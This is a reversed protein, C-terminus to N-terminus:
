ECQVFSPRMRALNMLIETARAGVSTDSDSRMKRGTVGPYGATKEVIEAALRRDLQHYGGAFALAAAQAAIQRATMSRM